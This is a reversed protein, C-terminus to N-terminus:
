TLDMCVGDHCAICHGWNTPPAVREPSCRQTARPGIAPHLSIGCQPAHKRAPSSLPSGRSGHLPIQFAMSPRFWRCQVAHHAPILICGRGWLDTILSSAATAQRSLSLCCPLARQASNCPLTRESSSGGRTTHRVEVLLSGLLVHHTPLRDVLWGSPTGSVICSVGLATFLPSLDPEEVGLKGALAAITPGLISVQSGFVIFSMSYGILCTLLYQRSYQREAGDGGSAPQLLPARLHEDPEQGSHSRSLGGEYNSGSFSTRGPARGAAPSLM